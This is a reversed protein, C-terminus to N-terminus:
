LAAVIWRMEADNVKRAWVTALTTKEKGSVHRSEEDQAASYDNRFGVLGADGREL